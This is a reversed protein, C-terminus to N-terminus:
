KANRSAERNAQEELKDIYLQMQVKKLNMEKNKINVELQATSMKGLKSTYNVQGMSRLTSTASNWIAGNGTVKQGDLGEVVVGGFLQLDKRFTDCVANGAHVKLITKGSDFIKGDSIGSVTTYTRNRGIEVKKARVSWTKGKDGLGVLYTNEMSLIINPPEKPALNTGTYPLYRKFAFVSLFLIVIAAIVLTIYLPRKM